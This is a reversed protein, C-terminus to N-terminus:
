SAARARLQRAEWVALAGVVVFGLLALLLVTAVPDGAGPLRVQRGADQWPWLARLSGAMLGVLAAMTLDHRHELLWDLLKSFVGIGTAAGAVFTLVYAVSMDHLARLTPEYMGMVELLFAGSVGPLIMACIAVAASGFVRPLSPEGGAHTVPLGVLVYALVAAAAVVALMRPSRDRLRLWPIAISAAVLGFFLGRSEAPYREMLPPIIRSAIGIATVIGLALPVVLRWEVERIASRARPMDGRLPAVLASFFSSLSDILREYVGVILAMTGGSVGPIIDATGMLLGQAYHLPISGTKPKM